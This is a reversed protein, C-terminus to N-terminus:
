RHQNKAFYDKIIHRLHKVLSFIVLFPYLLTLSKKYRIINKYMQLEGKRMAWRNASLGGRTMTPRGLTTLPLDLYHVDTKLAIRLWLEHDETHTMTEDFYECIEKKIIISPTVAFNKLLLKTFSVKSLKELNFKKDFNNELTYSHGIFKISDDKLAEFVLELKQPHWMDDSDLFVIYEGNAEKIGRNRASSVGGNPKNILKITRNTQNNIIMKEVIKECGDKSGDNVV